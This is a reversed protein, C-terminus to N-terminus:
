VKRKRARLLEDILASKQAYIEPTEVMANLKAIEAELEEATRGDSPGEKWTARDRAWWRPLERGWDILRGQATLWRRRIECTEHYHRAYSEPIALLSAKALVEAVTPLHAFEEGGRGEEPSADARADEREGRSEELRIKDVQATVRIDQPRGDSTVIQKRPTDSSTVSRQKRKRKADTKRKETLAGGYDSWDHISGDDDLWGCEKLTVAFATADSEWEGAQAIEEVSLLSLDGDPAYDIAWWWLCVLHGILQTRKIGLKAATRLLKPHRQLNQHLPVWAM